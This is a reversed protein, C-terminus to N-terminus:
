RGDDLHEQKANHIFELMAQFVDSASLGREAIARLVDILLQPDTGALELKLTNMAPPAYLSELQNIERQVALATRFDTAIMAKAYLADLRARANTLRQDREATTDIEMQRRAREIYKDIQRARVDWAKKEAHAIIAERRAGSVMLAYVENVRRAAEANTARKRPAPAPKPPPM